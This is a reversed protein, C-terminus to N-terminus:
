VIYIYLSAQGIISHSTRKSYCSEGVSAKPGSQTFVGIHFCRSTTFQNM